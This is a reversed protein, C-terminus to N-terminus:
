VGDSLLGSVHILAPQLGVKPMMLIYLVVFSFSKSGWLTKKAPITSKNIWEQRLNRRNTGLPASKCAQGELRFLSSVGVGVRLVEAM